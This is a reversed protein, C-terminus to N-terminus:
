IESLLAPLRAARGCPLVHGGPFWTPEVGFHRALMAGAEAGAIADSQGVLIQIRERDLQPRRHLPSVPLYVADLLSTLEEYRQGRRAAVRRLAEGMRVLPRDLVLRNCSAEVTAYLAAVHAGLSTAAVGIQGYGRSKLWAIVQRLEATAQALLLANTVPDRTPFSPWPRATCACRPGHGPLILQVISANALLWEFPWDLRDRWLTGGFWGHLLVWVRRNEAAYLVLKPDLSCAEIGLGLAAPVVPRAWSITQTPRGRYIGHLVQLPELQPPVSFWDDESFAQRDAIHQGLTDCHNAADRPVFRREVVLRSLLRDLWAAPREFVQAGLPLMAALIARAFPKTELEV